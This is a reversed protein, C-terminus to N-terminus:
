VGTYAYTALAMEGMVFAAIGVLLHIINAIPDGQMEGAFVPITHSASVISSAAMVGGIAIRAWGSRSQYPKRLPPRNTKAYMRRFAEYGAEAVQVQQQINEIQQQIVDTM